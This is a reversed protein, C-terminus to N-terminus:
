QTKRQRMWSELDKLDYRVMNAAYKYFPPAIRKNDELWRVSVGLREAAQKRTLMTTM